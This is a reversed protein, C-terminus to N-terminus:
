QQPNIGAKALTAATEAGAAINVQQQQQQQQQARQNRVNAVDQKSVMEDLSIGAKEAASRIISDMDFNDMVTPQIQVFTGANSFFRNYALLMNSQQMYSLPGIYEVKMDIEGKIEEPIPQPLNNTDKLHDILLLALPTLCDEEIRRTQPAILGMTNQQRQAAETATLPQVGERSQMQDIFYAKEIKTELGKIIYEGIQLNAGTQFPKVAERGEDDIGGIMFGGPFTQLTSGLIGDNPLLLPPKVELQAARLIVEKFANLTEVDSIINWSPSIGYVEGVRKTWRLVLYPMKEFGKISLIHKDETCFYISSFPKEPTSPTGGISILDKTPLVVHIFTFKKHPKSELADEINDSLNERGWQQAAQRATLQFKRYVTDVVGVNNEEIWVESLHKTQFFIDTEDKSVNLIATGYWVLDLFLQYISSAFGSNGSTLVEFLKDELEALWKKVEESEKGKVRLKLWKMRPDVLGTLLIAALNQSATIATSDYLNQSRDRATLESNNDFIFDGRNPAIYDTIRQNVSDYNLRRGKLEELNSLLQRALDDM